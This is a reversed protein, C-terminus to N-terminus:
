ATKLIAALAFLTLFAGAALGLTRSVFAVAADM